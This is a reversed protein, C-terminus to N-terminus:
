TVLPPQLPKDENEIEIGIIKLSNPTSGGCITNCFYYLRVRTNVEIYEKRNIAAIFNDTEDQHVLAIACGGFGAGTM